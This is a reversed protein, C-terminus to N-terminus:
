LRGVVVEIVGKAAVPFDQLAKGLVTGVAPSNNTKAFGFGASVLLDGKAVPGIVNCPVRGMLALPVVNSGHLAGNMLHAPNTSVVGAIRTTDADAVTVEQAGGFMLVTGPNYSKDAQYNEALDAYLAHTATGYINNYWATSSGINYAVNSSPIINGGINVNGATDVNVRLIQSSSGSYINAGFNDVAFSNYGNTSTINTVAETFTLTTGSVSYALTPIQVVGNISVICSATTQSSSLTFITQSGTGNFQQDAIVTFSSTVGQWATGNYFEIANITTNYRFMGTTDTFGVSGPRQASTGVPLLISDTTNINLKAGNVVQSSTASNGVIVTDYTANPRAWILTNDNKGKVKFDNGATQSGNIIMAGGIYSNGSISEGGWVQFAGTNATNNNNTPLKLTFTGSNSTNGHFRAVESNAYFSGVGLVIDNYSGTWDTSLILNGGVTANAGSAFVYGDNAKTISYVPDSFADGTFGLDMWGHDNSPGPYNNGYAIYDSSGTNTANILAAQTYQTGPGTVSTGRAVTLAGTLVTAQSSAGVFL